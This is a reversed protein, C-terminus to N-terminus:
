GPDVRCERGELGTLVVVVVVWMAGRGGGAGEVVKRRADSVVGDVVM